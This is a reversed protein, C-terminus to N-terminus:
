ISIWALLTLYFGVETVQQIAGLCDGTYGGIRRYFYQALVLRLAFSGAAGVAGDVGLWVLPTLGFLAACVLGFTSLSQAAPKARASDDERVYRQTYILSVAM